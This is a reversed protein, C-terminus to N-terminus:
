SIRLRAMSFVTAWTGVGVMAVCTALNAPGIAAAAAPGAAGVWLAPVVYPVWAGVGLSALIQSVAATLVIAGTAGLVGRTLVAVCGFPIALLGTLAAAAVVVLAERVREPTLGDPAVAWSALVTLLVAATTAASSWAAAVVVKAAATERLSVAVAFLSGITDDTFERGFLWAYVFGAALVTSVTLVQGALALHAETVTGRALPAFKEASPGSVNGSRALAVLGITAVPTVLVILGSTLWAVRSRRFKTLEIALAARM